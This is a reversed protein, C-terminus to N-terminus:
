EYGWTKKESTYVRRFVAIYKFGIMCEKMDNYTDYDFDVNLWGMKTKPIVPIYGDQLEDLSSPYKNNALHYRELSSIMQIATEETQNSQWKIIQASAFFSLLISFTLPLIYKRIYIRKIYEVKLIWIVFLVPAGFIVILPFFSIGTPSEISLLTIILFSIFFIGWRFSKLKRFFDIIKM